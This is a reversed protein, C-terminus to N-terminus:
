KGKAKHKRGSGDTDGPEDGKPRVPTEEGPPTSGDEAEVAAPEEASVLPRVILEAPVAGPATSITLRLEPVVTLLAPIASLDLWVADHGQSGRSGTQEDISM